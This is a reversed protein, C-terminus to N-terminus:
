KSAGGYPNISVARVRWHSVQNGLNYNALIIEVATPKSLSFFVPMTVPHPEESSSFVATNAWQQSKADLVGLTLGGNQVQGRVVAVYQGTPLTTNPSILQYAQGQPSTVVHLSGNVTTVKVLPVARVWSSLMDTSTWSRLPPKLYVSLTEVPGFAIFAPHRAYASPSRRSSRLTGQLILGVAVLVVLAVAVVVLAIGSRQWTPPGARTPSAAAM